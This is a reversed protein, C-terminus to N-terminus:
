NDFAFVIRLDKPDIGLSHMGAVMRTYYDGFGDKHNHAWDCGPNPAADWDFTLLDELTLWSCSHLDYNDRMYAAVSESMQKPLGRPVDISKFDGRDRVGALIAFASYSRDCGWETRARDAYCAPDRKACQVLYPDRYQEPVDEVREWMGADTRREVFLHIDCGM